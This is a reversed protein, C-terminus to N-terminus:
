GRGIPIDLATFYESTVENYSADLVRLQPQGTSVHATPLSGRLPERMAAAVAAAGPMTQLSERLRAALIPTPSFTEQIAAISISHAVDFGPQVSGFRITSRLLLGAGILLVLSLAFQVIVLGDRLGSRRFRSGIFAGEAKLAFNLSSRTAHLAPALGFVVGTT